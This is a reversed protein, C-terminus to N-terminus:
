SDKLSDLFKKKFVWYSRPLDCPQHALTSSGPLKIYPSPRAVAESDEAESDEAESDDSDAAPMDYELAPMDAYDGVIPSEDCNFIVNIASPSVTAMQYALRVGKPWIRRRKNLLGFKGKPVQTQRTARPSQM